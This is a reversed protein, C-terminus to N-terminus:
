QAINAEQAADLLMVLAARDGAFVEQAETYIALAQGHRGLVALARILRAWDQPPGGESSLRDALGGVMGEIMEMRQAPTLDSAAAVDAESPGPMQDVPPLEYDVGALAAVDVIQARIAPVWPAEPPSQGLLQVWLRFALDPRGIQANMLGIYYRALPQAPELSLARAFAAEAEPSVYGGAALVLLDGLVAFDEATANPGKIEIVRRQAAWAASFRGLRAENRALLEQGQLDSPREAVAARLKAMLDDFEATTEAMATETVQAEAAAQNPRMKRAEEALSIRTELPLDPYGPAGLFWYLGLSGLVVVPAIVALAVVPGPGVKTAQAVPGARDAELLRRKIEVELRAAEEASVTGRALDRAVSALQEKYVEVDLAPAAASGDGPPHLAARALLAAVAVAIAGAVGWFVM